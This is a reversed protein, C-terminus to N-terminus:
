LRASIKLGLVVADETKKVGGPNKIYQINPRLIIGNNLNLGYFLETSAEYNQIPITTQAVENQLKINKQYNSNVGIRGFALGFIDNPRSEFLGHGLVGLNISNNIYSANKDNYHLQTFLQLPRQPDNFLYSINKQYMGWYGYRQNHEKSDVKTLAKPSNNIDLYVDEAKATSYYGGFRFLGQQDLKGVIFEIPLIVGKSGKTNLRLANDNEQLSPNQEFIATQVTVSDNLKYKVQAAWQSVPFNYILSGTNSGSTNGCFLLNQFECSFEGFEGFGFRGIRLDISNDIFKQRYSLEALRTVSGRGWVEQASTLQGGEPDILRTRTIDKGNRNTLIIKLNANPISLIKDLDLDTGILIENAYELKKDKNFGGNLNYGFEHMYNGIVEIGSNNLKTRHGNWDGTLNNEYESNQAYLFCSTSFLMTFLLTKKVLQSM